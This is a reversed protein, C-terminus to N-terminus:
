RETEGEVYASYGFFIVNIVPSMGINSLVGKLLMERLSNGPFRPCCESKTNLTECSWVQLISKGNASTATYNSVIPVSLFRPM